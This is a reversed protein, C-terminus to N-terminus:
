STLFTYYSDGTSCHQLIHPLVQSNEEGGVGLAGQMIVM